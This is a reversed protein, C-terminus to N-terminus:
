SVAEGSQPSPQFVSPEGASTMLANFLPIAFAGLTKWGIPSGDPGEALDDDALRPATMAAKLFAKATRNFEVSLKDEDVEAQDKTLASLQALSLVGAGIAEGTVQTSLRLLEFERNPFVVKFKTDASIDM